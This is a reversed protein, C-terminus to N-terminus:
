GSATSTRDDFVFLMGRDPPLSPRFMLGMARDEDKVMLETQLVQGVAPDAPHRGPAGGRPAVPLACRSRSRRPRAARRAHRSPLGPAGPGARAGDAATRLARWTVRAWRAAGRRRPGGLAARPQAGDLAAPPPRPRRCRGPRRLPRAPQARAAFLAPDGVTRALDYAPARWAPIATARPPVAARGRGRLRAAGRAGDGDGRPRGAARRRPQPHARRVVRQRGAVEVRLAERSRATAGRVRYIACEGLYRWALPLGRAGQRAAASRRPGGRRRRPLVPTPRRRARPRPVAPAARGLDLTLITEHARPTRAQPSGRRRPAGRAAPAAGGPAGLRRPDPDTPTTPGM